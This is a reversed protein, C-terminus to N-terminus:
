IKTDNFILIKKTKQDVWKVVETIEVSYTCKKTEPDYGINTLRTYSEGWTSNPLLHNIEARIRWEYSGCNSESPGLETYTIPQYIKHENQDKKLDCWAVLIQSCLVLWLVKNM